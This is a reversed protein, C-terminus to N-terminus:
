IMKKPVHARKFGKLFFDQSSFFFVQYRFCIVHIKSLSYKHISFCFSKSLFVSQLETSFPLNQCRALSTVRLLWVSELVAALAELNNWVGFSSLPSVCM